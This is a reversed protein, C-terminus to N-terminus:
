QCQLKAPGHLRGSHATLPSPYNRRAFGLRHCRRPHSSRGVPVISPLAQSIARLIAPVPSHQPLPRPNRPRKPTCVSQVIRHSRHHWPGSSALIRYIVRPERNAGPHFTV